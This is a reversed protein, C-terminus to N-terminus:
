WCTLCTHLIAELTMVLEGAPQQRESLRAKEDRLQEKERRLQEEKRRLQEEKKMLGAYTPNDGWQLVPVSAERLGAEVAGIKGEVAKIEDEVTQIKTNIDDAAMSSGVKWGEAFHRNFSAFLTPVPLLHIDAFVVSLVLVELACSRSAFAM